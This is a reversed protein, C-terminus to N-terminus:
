IGSLRDLVQDALALYRGALPKWKEPTRPVPDLLHALALRARLVSRLASHLHFLRQPTEPELRRIVREFLASGFDQAGLLACEVWLYALEDIPDVLRLEASFELCDFIVVGDDLCIHEPKLDGHGDVLRGGSARRELLPRNAQLAEALLDLVM